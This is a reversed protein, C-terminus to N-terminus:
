QLMVFQSNHIFVVFFHSFFHHLFFLLFFFFISVFITHFNKTKLESWFQITKNNENNSYKEYHIKKRRRKTKLQKHIAVIFYASRRKIMRRECVCEVIFVLLLKSNKSDNEKMTKLKQKQELAIVFVNQSRKRQKPMKLNFRRLFSRVFKIM